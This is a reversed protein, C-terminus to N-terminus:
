QDPFRTMVSRVSSNLSVAACHTASAWDVVSGLTRAARIMLGLLQAVHRVMSGRVVFHYLAFKVIALHELLRGHPLWRCHLLLLL